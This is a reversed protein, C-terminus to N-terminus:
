NLLARDSLEKELQIYAFGNILDTCLKPFDPRRITEDEFISRLALWAEDLFEDTPDQNRFVALYGSDNRAPIFKNLPDVIGLTLWPYPLMKFFFKIVNRFDKRTGIQFTMSHMQPDTAALILSNFPLEVQFKRATESNQKSRDDAM